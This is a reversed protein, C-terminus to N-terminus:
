KKIRLNGEKGITIIKNPDIVDVLTINKRGELLTSQPKLYNVKPKGFITAIAESMLTIIQELEKVCEEFQKAEKLLKYRETKLKITNSFNERDFM